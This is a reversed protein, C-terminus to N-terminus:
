SFLFSCPTVKKIKYVYDFNKEFGKFYEENIKKEKINLFSGNECVFLINIIKDKLKNHLIYGTPIIELSNFSIKNKSAHINGLIVFTKKNSNLIKMINNAMLKERDNQNKLKNVDICYINIKDKLVYLIKILNYYELSNRGDMQNKDNFFDIMLLYKENGTDFFRNIYRQYKSPIELCLNFPYEKSLRRFLKLLIKPIEKTGHLEGFLIVRSQKIRSILNSNM